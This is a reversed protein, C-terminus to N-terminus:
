YTICDERLLAHYYEYALVIAMDTSHVHRLAYRAYDILSLMLKLNYRYMQTDHDSM